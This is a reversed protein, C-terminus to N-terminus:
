AKKQVLWQKQGSPNPGLGAVGSVSGGIAGGLRQKSIGVELLRPLLTRVLADGDSGVAKVWTAGGIAIV